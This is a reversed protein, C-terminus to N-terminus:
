STCNKDFMSICVPIASWTGRIKQSRNFEFKISTLWFVKILPGTPSFLGDSYFATYRTPILPQGIPYLKGNQHMPRDRRPHGLLCPNLILYIFYKLHLTTPSGSEWFCSMNSHSKATVKLLHFSVMCKYIGLLPWLFLHPSFILMYHVTTSDNCLDKHNTHSFFRDKGKSSDMKSGIVNWIKYLSMVLERHFLISVNLVIWHKMRDISKQWISLLLLSGLFRRCHVALILIIMPWLINYCNYYYITCHLFHSGKSFKLSFTPYCSYCYSFLGFIMVGILLASVKIMTIPFSLQTVYTNSPM